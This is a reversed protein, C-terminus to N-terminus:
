AVWSDILTRANDLSTAEKVLDIVPRVKSPVYRYIKISKPKFVTVILHNKYINLRADEPLVNFFTPVAQKMEPITM